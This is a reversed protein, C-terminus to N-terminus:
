SKWGTAAMPFALAITRGRFRRSTSVAVIIESGGISKRMFTLMSQQSDSGDIWEFGAPDCDLEHLAPETRYTRNLDAVWRQLRRHSDYQLLHWELSSDHSWEAWQGFEGGM